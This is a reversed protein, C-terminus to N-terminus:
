HSVSILKKILQQFTESELDASKKLTFVAVSFSDFVHSQNLAEQPDYLCPEIALENTAKQLSDSLEASPSIILIKGKGATNVTNKENLLTTQM